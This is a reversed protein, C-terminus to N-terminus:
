PAGPRRFEKVAVQGPSGLPPLVEGNLEARVAGANGFKALISERAKWEQRAGAEVTGQFVERGDCSVSVWCRGTYILILDLGAQGSFSPSEEKSLTEEEGAARTLKPAEAPPRSPGSHRWDRVALFVLALLLVVSGVAVVAQRRSFPWPHEEAPKRAPAVASSVPPVREDVTGPSAAARLRDYFALVERPPLGVAEAYNQLFGRLYVEGPIIQLDGEELAELYRRRIKTRRQIEELSVGKEERTRRLFEGLERLVLAERERRARRQYECAPM